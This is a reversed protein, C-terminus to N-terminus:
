KKKKKTSSKSKQAPQKQPTDKKNDGGPSIVADAILVVGNGVEIDSKSIGANGIHIKGGETRVRLKHGNWTQVVKMNKLEGYEIRGKLIHTYLTDQLKGSGKSKLNAIGAASDRPAIVTYPGKTRLMKTLGAKKVANLFASFRGNNRLADIITQGSAKGERVHKRSKKKHKMKGPAGEEDAPAPGMEAGSHQEITPTPQPTIPQPEEVPAPTEMAPKEEIVAPKQKQACSACSLAVVTMLLTLGSLRVVKWSKM